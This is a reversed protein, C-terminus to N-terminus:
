QKMFKSLFTQAGDVLKIIYLGESISQISIMNSEDINGKLVIRGTLDYVEYSVSKTKAIFQLTLLNSAPNPYVSLKQITNIHVENLGNLSLCSPFVNTNFWNKVRKVDSDLKPLVPISSSGTRSFVIAYDVSQKAGSLLTVPGTAMIFRRDGPINGASKETWETRGSLDNIDPYMFSTTDTGRYGNGGYTVPSADKWRSNLYGWYDEPKQPNGQQTFDNEYYMFNKMGQNIGSLSTGRLQVVALAPPNAGYGQWGEDISDGNYVYGYGEKPNCGIFDDSYNGLDVDTWMGIKLSDIAVNTRNFIDYHYFTTYNIATNSDNDNIDDCKFAYASAHVEIGLPLSRTEGHIMQDNFIWYLMQDGKILPYDGFQPEYKNPLGGINVFPALNWAEGKTTDGHAPWTLIDNLIQYNPNSYHSKFDDIQWRNIKWKKSYNSSTTSDISANNVSLPGPWFDNGNQRYTQAALKLNGNVIGGIWLASAFIAKKCTGKPVEYGAANLDWFMDGRSLMPTSVKNVDLYQLETNPKEDKFLSPNFRYLSDKGSYFGERGVFWIIGNKDTQIFAGKSQYLINFQKLSYSNIPQKSIDSITMFTNSINTNDLGQVYVKGNADSSFSYSTQPLNIQSCYNVMDQIPTIVGNVIKYIGVYGNGLASSDTAIWVSNKADVFVTNIYDKKLKSNASLYNTFVGGNLKSLGISTGCWINGNNDADISTVIDNFITSNSKNYNTWTTGDFKSIGNDTAIWVIGNKVKVDNISDSIIGSNSKNYINWSSNNKKVLGNKTGIWLDNGNFELSTLYNTPMVSNTTNYTTWISGNFQALGISSVHLNNGIKRGTFAIWLNGSSDVKMDGKLSRDYYNTGSPLTYSSLASQAKIQFSFFSLIVIYFLQTKM